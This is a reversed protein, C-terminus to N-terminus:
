SGVYHDKIAKEIIDSTKTRLAQVILQHRQAIENMDIGLEDISSRMISGMQGDLLHWLEAVRTRGGASIIVGHFNTDADVISAMDGSLAALKMNEIESDLADFLEPTLWDVNESVASAELLFRAFCTDEIEDLDMRAVYCGHRNSIEVLNENALERLASRLTTRSVGFEESIRSEVLREGAAFENNLIRRRLVAYVADPLPVHAIVRAEPVKDPPTVSYKRDQM